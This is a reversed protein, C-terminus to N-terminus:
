LIIIAIITVNIYFLQCNAFGKSMLNKSGEYSNKLYALFLIIINM